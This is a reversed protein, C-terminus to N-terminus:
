LLELIPDDLERLNERIRADFLEVIRQAENAGIM